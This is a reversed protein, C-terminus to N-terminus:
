EGDGKSIRKYRQAPHNPVPFARQLLGEDVMKRMFGKLYQPNRKIERAIEELSKWDNATEIILDFLEKQSCKKKVGNSSTLNSSSSTLNSIDLYDYKKM